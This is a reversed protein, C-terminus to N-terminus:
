RIKDKAALEIKHRLYKNLHNKNIGFVDKIAKYFDARSRGYLMLKKLTAIGGKELALKCLLGGITAKPNTYNNMYTFSFLKGLNIEPHKHLYSSLQKLQWKLSHGMSGGYYVAIGQLFIENAKPFHSNLYIHTMEHPYYEGNGGSFIIKNAVDTFGQIKFPNGMGMYIELGDLKMLKTITKGIYYNVHIPKLHFIKQLSDAFANMRKAAKYSFHYGKKFHYTISGVTRKEWNRTTIPLANFLKYTGHVKKAYLNAVCLISQSPYPSTFATKIQYYGDKKPTVALLVPKFGKYISSKLYGSRLFDFIKYKQKEKKNWYPNNYVSDPGYALYERWTHIVKKMATDTTDIGNQIQLHLQQAHAGHSFVLALFVIVVTTKM